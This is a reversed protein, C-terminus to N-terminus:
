IINLKILVVPDISETGYPSYLDKVLPYIFRLDIAKELRRVLHNDPVLQDLSLMEIQKKDTENKIGMM